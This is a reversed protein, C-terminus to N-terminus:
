DVLAQQRKGVTARAWVGLGVLFGMALLAKWEQETGTYMEYLSVASHSSLFGATFIRGVAELSNIQRVGWGLVAHVALAATMLFILYHIAARIPMEMLLVGVIFMAVAAVTPVHMLIRPITMRARM